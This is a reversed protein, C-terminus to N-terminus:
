GTNFSFIITCLSSYLSFIICHLHDVKKLEAKTPESKLTKTRQLPVLVETTRNDTVTVIKDDAADPSTPSTPASAAKLRRERERKSADYAEKASRPVAPPASSPAPDSVSAPAFVPTPTTVDNSTSTVSDYDVGSAKNTLPTTEIDRSSEENVPQQPSDTLTSSSPFLRAFFSTFTDDEGKEELQRLITLKISNSGQLHKSYDIKDTFSGDMTHIIDGTRLPPQANMAAGNPNIDAIWVIQHGHSIHSDTQITMGWVDSPDDRKLQIKLM